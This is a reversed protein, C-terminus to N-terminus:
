VTARQTERTIGLYNWMFETECDSVRSFNPCETDTDPIKVRCGATVTPNKVVSKCIQFNTVYTSNCVGTQETQVFIVFISSLFPPLAFSDLLSAWSVSYQTRGM